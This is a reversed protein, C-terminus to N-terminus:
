REKELYRRMEPRNLFMNKLETPWNTTFMELERRARVRAEAAGADKAGELAKLLVMVCRLRVLAQSTAGGEALTGRATEAAVGFRTEAIQARALVCGMATRDTVDEKPNMERVTRAALDEAERARGTLLLAETELRPRTIGVSKPLERVM